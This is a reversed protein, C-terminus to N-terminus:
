IGFVRKSTAGYNLTELRWGRESNLLVTVSSIKADIVDRYRALPIFLISCLLLRLWTKDVVALGYRCQVNSLWTLARTLCVRPLEGFRPIDVSPDEEFKKWESKYRDKIEKKTLGEWEGYHIENLLPDVSIPITRNALILDLTQRCRQSTGVYAQDFPLERLTAHLYAAEKKGRENIPPDSYGLFRGDPGPNDYDTLSHRVLLIRKNDSPL